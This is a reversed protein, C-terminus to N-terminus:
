PLGNSSVLLQGLFTNVDISHDFILPLVPVFSGLLCIKGLSFSEDQRNNFTMVNQHIKYEMKILYIQTTKAYPQGVFPRIELRSWQWINEGDGIEFVGCSLSSGACFRLEPKITIVVVGHRWITIMHKALFITREYLLHLFQWYFTYIVLSQLM